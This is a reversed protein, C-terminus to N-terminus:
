KYLSVYPQMMSPQMVLPQMVSPQMMPAPMQNFPFPPPQLDNQPQSASFKNRQMSRNDTYNAYSQYTRNNNNRRRFTAQVGFNKILRETGKENIHLGDDELYGENPSKDALRFNVDNDIYVFKPNRSCIEKIQPNVNEAKLQAAGDDLRPLISSFFVKETIQSACELLQQAENTISETTRNLISCNNTGGVIYIKCYSNNKKAFLELNEKITSLKAGPLTRIILRTQDNSQFNRVLSDGIILVPKRITKNEPLLSEKQTQKNRLEDKLLQNEAQLSDLLLNRTELQKVLLSNSERLNTLENTTQVLKCELEDIRYNVAKTSNYSLHCEQAVEALKLLIEDLCSSVNRCKQCKWNDINSKVDPRVDHFCQMCATCFVGNGKNTLSLPDTNEKVSFNSDIDSDSSDDICKPTTKEFDTKITNSSSRLRRKIADIPSTLIETASTKTSTTITTNNSM